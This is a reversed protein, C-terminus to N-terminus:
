QEHTLDLHRPGSCHGVMKEEQIRQDVLQTFLMNLALDEDM